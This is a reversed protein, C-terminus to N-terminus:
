FSYMAKLGFTNIRSQPQTISYITSGSTIGISESQKFRSSDYYGVIDWYKGPRYALEAYLSVGKGLTLPQNAAISTRGPQSDQTARIPLKLGGSGHFGKGQTPQDLSVGTRLFLISYDDPQSLNNTRRWNDWGVGGVYNLRYKGLNQRAILQGEHTIGNYDTRSAAAADDPQFGNEFRGSYLKASYAYLLGSDSDDMWKLHLAYRSSNEKPALTSGQLTGEQSSPIISLGSRQDEGAMAVPSSLASAFLIAALIRTSM